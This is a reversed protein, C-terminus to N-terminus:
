GSPDLAHSTKGADILLQAKFMLMAYKAIHEKDNDVHLDHILAPFPLEPPWKGSLLRGWPGALQTAAYASPSPWSCGSSTDHPFFESGARYVRTICRLQGLLGPQQM